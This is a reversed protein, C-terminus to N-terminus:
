NVKSAEILGLMSRLNLFQELKLPKTMIDVVQSQSSCYKLENSGNKM